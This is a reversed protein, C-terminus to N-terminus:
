RRGRYMGPGGPGGMGPGGRGPGASRLKEFKERQEPTLLRYFQASAKTHVALMSGHLAGATSALADIDMDSKDSKAADRLAENSSVMKERIDLTDKQEKEFITRAEIKQAETLNLATALFETRRDLMKAPDFKARKGGPGGSGGPGGQATAFAVCAITLFTFRTIAAKM